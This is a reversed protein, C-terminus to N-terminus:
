HDDHEIICAAYWWIMSESERAIFRASDPSNEDVNKIAKCNISDPHLIMRKMGRVRGELPEEFEEKSLVRFSSVTEEGSM